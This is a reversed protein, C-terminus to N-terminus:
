KEFLGLFIFTLLFARNGDVMSRLNKLAQRLHAKVTFLSINMSQAVEKQKLGDIYFMTYVLRQQPPLKELLRDVYAQADLHSLKEQTSNDAESWSSFSVVLAREYAAIKKLADLTMNISVKRLYAGFNDVQSLNERQNWIKLFVEQVVEQALEESKLFKIAYNFVKVHYKDFIERFARHNGNAVQNLLLHIEEKITNRM